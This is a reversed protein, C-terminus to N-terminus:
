RAYNGGIPDVAFDVEGEPMKATTPPPLSTGPPPQYDPWPTRSNLFTIGGWKNDALKGLLMRFGTQGHLQKSYTYDVCGTVSYLTPKDTGAAGVSQSVSQTDSPFVTVGAVANEDAQTRAKQCDANEREDMITTNANGPHPGIEAFIRVNGAPTRGFNKLAFKLPVQFSKNGAWSSFFLPREITTTVAIWPRMDAELVDAQGQMTALQRAFVTEQIRAYRAVQYTLIAIAIAALAALAGGHLDLEHVFAQFSRAVFRRCVAAAKAVQTDSVGPQPPSEANWSNEASPALSQSLSRTEGDPEADDM